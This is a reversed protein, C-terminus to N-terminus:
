APLLLITRVEDFESLFINIRVIRNITLPKTKAAMETGNISPLIGGFPNYPKRTFFVISFGSMQYGTFAYPPFHSSTALKHITEAATPKAKMGPM